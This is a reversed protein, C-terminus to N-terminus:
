YWRPYHIMDKRFKSGPCTKHTNFERHFFVSNISLGFTKILFYCLENLVELQENNPETLDYNGVLCIGISDVNHYKTHAGAEMLSRGRLIAYSNGVREIGYHYGIDKWKLVNTHYKRIADWSVTKSDKTLSHHIIIKNIMRM